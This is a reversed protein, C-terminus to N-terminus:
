DLWNEVRLGPVREFDVLNRSLLLADHNICIAAIKLDMTGLRPLLKRLRGYTKAAELDFPLITIKGFDRLAAQFRLYGFVQAEGASERNLAALWGQSVEQATIITTFIDADRESTRRILNSALPGGAVLATFHNTDIVAFMLEGDKPTPKHAGSRALVSPM